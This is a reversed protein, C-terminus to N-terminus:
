VSSNLRMQALPPPQLILTFSLILPHSHPSHRSEPHACVCVCVCVTRTDDHTRTGAEMKNTEQIETQIIRETELKMVMALKSRNREDAEELTMVQGVHDRHVSSRLCTDCCILDDVPCLLTLPLFHLRCLPTSPCISSSSSSSSSSMAKEIGGKAEIPMLLQLARHKSQVKNQTHLECLNADCRTCYWEAPTQCEDCLIKTPLNDPHSGLSDSVVNSPPCVFQNSVENLREIHHLM